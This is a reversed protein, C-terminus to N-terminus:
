LTQSNLDLDYYHLILLAGQLLCPPLKLSLRWNIQWQSLAKLHHLAASLDDPQIPINSKATYSNMALIFNWAEPTDCFVSNIRLICVTLWLTKDRDTFCLSCKIGPGLPFFSNQKWSRDPFCIQNPLYLLWYEIVTTGWMPPVLPCGSICRCECAIGCLTHPVRNSFREYM